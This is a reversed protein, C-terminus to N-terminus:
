HALPTILLPCPPPAPPPVLLPPEHPPSRRTFVQREGRWVPTGVYGVGLLDRVQGALDDRGPLDERQSGFLDTQARLWEAREASADDELWRYPDSVQDGLVEETLDLRRAQPYGFESM